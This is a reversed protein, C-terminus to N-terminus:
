KVSPLLTIKGLAELRARPLNEKASHQLKPVRCFQTFFFNKAKLIKQDRTLNSLKIGLLM